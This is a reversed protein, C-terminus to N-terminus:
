WTCGVEEWQEFADGEGVGYSFSRRMCRKSQNVYYFHGRGNGWDWCISQMGPPGPDNRCGDNANLMGYSGFDSIWINWSQCPGVSRCKTGILTYDALATYTGLTAVLVTSLSIKM